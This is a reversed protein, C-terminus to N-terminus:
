FAGIFSYHSSLNTELKHKTCPLDLCLSWMHKDKISCVIVNGAVLIRAKHELIHKPVLM